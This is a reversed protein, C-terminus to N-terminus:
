KKIANAFLDPFKPAEAALAPAMFPRKAYRTQITRYEKRADAARRRDRRFWTGDGNRFREQFLTASGGMELRAPVTAAGRASFERQNLRVPGVVVTKRTPEYAFLITKLNPSTKSHARPQQGPSSSKKSRRISQKARTRVFAGAKSMAAKTAKDLAKDVLERDFFQNTISFELVTM